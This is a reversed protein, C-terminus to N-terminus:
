EDVSFSPNMTFHDHIIRKCINLSAENLLFLMWAGNSFKNIDNIQDYLSLSNFQNNTNSLISRRGTTKPSILILYKNILLGFHWSHDRFIHNRNSSQSKLASWTILQNHKICFGKRRSINKTIKLFALIQHFDVSRSSSHLRTYPCFHLKWSTASWVFLAPFLCLALILTVSFLQATSSIEKLNLSGM